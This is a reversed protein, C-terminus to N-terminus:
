ITRWSSSGRAAAPVHPAAEVEVSALRAEVLRGAAAPMLVVAPTAAAAGAAPADAAASAAISAAPLAHFLMWVRSARLSDAVPLRRRRLIHAARLRGEATKM